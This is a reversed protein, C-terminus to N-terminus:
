RLYKDVKEDILNRAVANSVLRYAVLHALEHALVLMMHLFSDCKSVVLESAGDENIMLLGRCYRRKGSLTAGVIYPVFILKLEVM